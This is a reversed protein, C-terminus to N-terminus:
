FRTLDLWKSSRCSPCVLDAGANLIPIECKRCYLAAQYSGAKGSEAVKKSERIMHEIVELTDVFSVLFDSTDASRRAKNATILASVENLLADKQASTMLDVAIKLYFRYASREAPEDM